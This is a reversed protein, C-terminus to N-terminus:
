ICFSFDSGTINIMRHVVWVDDQELFAVAGEVNENEAIGDGNWGKLGYVLHETPSVLRQPQERSFTIETCKRDCNQKYLLSASYPSPHTNYIM